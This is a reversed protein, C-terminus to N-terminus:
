RNRLFLSPYVNQKLPNIISELVIVKWASMRFTLSRGSTYSDKNCIPQVCTYFYFLTIVAQDPYSDFVDLKFVKINHDTNSVMRNMDYLPLRYIRYVRIQIVGRRTM